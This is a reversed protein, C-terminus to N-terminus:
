MVAVASRKRKADPLQKTYREENLLFLKAIKRWGQAPQKGVMM